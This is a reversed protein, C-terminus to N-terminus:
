ETDVRYAEPTLAEKLQDWKQIIERILLTRYHYHSKGGSIAVEMDKDRQLQHVPFNNSQCIYPLKHFVLRSLLSIFIDEGNWLPQSERYIFPAIIDNVKWFAKILEQPVIMLSTLGIPLRLSQIFGTDYVYHGNVQIINRGYKCVLCPYNLKAIEYMRQITLPPVIMDDDIFLLLSNKASMAALFRLSLGFAKNKQNDDRHVIKVIDSKFDFMTDKRGHSIIIEDILPCKILQPLIYRRINDPRLWNLIIVSIKNLHLTIDRDM